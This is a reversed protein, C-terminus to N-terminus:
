PTSAVVTDPSTLLARRVSFEETESFVKLPVWGPIESMRRMGRSMAGTPDIVWPDDRDEFWLTVMHHQGDSPRYVISRFVEDDFGLERLGNFVLLELGDCDDGNGALTEDMTAWHDIPGDAVYHNKAESQIWDAFDRAVARKREARFTAYKARLGPEGPTASPPQHSASEDGAGAVPPAVGLVVEGDARERRQWGHIKPSWADDPSPQAFYVYRAGYRAFGACGMGLGLSAVLGVLIPWLLFRVRSNATRM